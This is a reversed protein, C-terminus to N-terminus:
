CRGVEPETLKEPIGELLCMAPPITLTEMVGYANWCFPNMVFDGQAPLLEVESLTLNTCPVSDSCGFHMPLSRADYTGKINSYMVDSVYVASTQNTCNKTLCYYQDIIIPNRVTDMHINNFTIKSVAGSGGQWTKIRVGNDSHKIKSDSVTINSVCAHSNHVGLSGISIGHSPGCTINRIDVNYCGAGISVCDDGNSIVSDYIEVNNTNEIHIGDTNPSLAPSKITLSQVRVNQCGDFRFHFQPSDKIKLGYVTLNSSMFFRLTVPSDCRGPMTTGNVGKHPKCPLNWWKEGKGDILGGGQLSMGSVRYFVLWQRKSKIQPWLEPGDPPMITGDIQFLISSKCPGTFITSQIMFSHGRPVLITSRGGNDARCAADWAMKFADTDDTAGDGVAGFKRVDFVGTEDEPEDESSPGPAAEPAPFPQASIQSIPHSHKKRHGHHNSKAIVVPLFLLCSLVAFALLSRVLQLNNTM